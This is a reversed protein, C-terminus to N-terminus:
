EGTDGTDVDSAGGTDMATDAVEEVKFPDCGDPMDECTKDIHGSAFLHCGILLLIM